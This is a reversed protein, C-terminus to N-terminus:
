NKKNSSFIQKNQQQQQQPVITSVSPFQIERNLEKMQQDLEMQTMPQVQKKLIKLYNDKLKVSFANNPYYEIKKDQNTIEQQLQQFEQKQQYLQDNTPYKYKIEKIGEVFQTANQPALQDDEVDFYAEIGFSQFLQDQIHRMFEQMNFVSIINRNIEQQQQEQQEYYLKFFFQIAYLILDHNLKIITLHPNKKYAENIKQQIEDREQQVQEREEVLQDNLKQPINRGLRIGYQAKHINMNQKEVNLHFLRIQLYGLRKQVFLKMLEQFFSHTLYSFIDCYKNFQKEDEFINYPKIGHLLNNKVQYNHIIYRHESRHLVNRIMNTAAINIPNNNNSLKQRISEWQAIMLLLKNKNDDDYRIIFDPPACVSTIGCLTMRENFQPTNLNSLLCLGILYNLIGHLQVSFIQKFVAQMLRAKNILKPRASTIGNSKSFIKNFYEIISTSQQVLELQDNNELQRCVSGIIIQIYKRLGHFFILNSGLVCGLHLDKLANFASESLQPIKQKKVNDTLGQLGDVNEFEQTYFGYLNQITKDTDAIKQKTFYFVNNYNVNFKTNPQIGDGSCEKKIFLLTQRTKNSQHVEAYNDYCVVSFNPNIEQILSDAICTFNKPNFFSQIYELGRNIQEENLSSFVRTKMQSIKEQNQYSFENLYDAFQEEQINILKSIPSLKNYSQLKIASSIQYEMLIQIANIQNSEPNFRNILKKVDDLNQKAFLM